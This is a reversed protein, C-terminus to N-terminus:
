SYVHKKLNLDNIYQEPFANWTTFEHGNNELTLAEPFFSWRNNTTQASSVEFSMIILDSLIFFISIYLKYLKNNLLDLAKHHSNDTQETRHHNFKYSIM